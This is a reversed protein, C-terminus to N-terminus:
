APKGLRFAITGIVVSNAWNPVRQNYGVSSQYENPTDGVQSKGYPAPGWANVTDVLCGTSSLCILKQRRHVAGPPIGNRGLANRHRGNRQTTQQIREAVGATDCSMEDEALGRAWLRAAFGPRGIVQTMEWSMRDSLCWTM